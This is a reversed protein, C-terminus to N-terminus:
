WREGLVWWREFDVVDKERCRMWNKLIFYEATMTETMPRAAAWVNSIGCHAWCHTAAARVELWHLLLSATQRQPVKCDMRDEPAAQTLWLQPVLTSRLWIVVATVLAQAGKNPPPPAEDTATEAEEATEEATAEAEEATEEATAEAEEATEEAEAEAEEAAELLAEDAEDAEDAAELLAEEAEDAEELLAEAEELRAEAEDAAELRAEEAAGTTDDAGMMVPGPNVRVATIVVASVARLPVVVAMTVVATGTGPGPGPGTVLLPVTTGGVTTGGVWVGTVMM